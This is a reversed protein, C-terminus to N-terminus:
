VAYQEADANKFALGLGPRSLDPKINGDRPVPAGEFLMHEIRVHDHFWELNRFRPIACAAAVHLSPACHGSLDTHHAECLTGIALFGTIGGCRTADAQQVDVAGRGLMNRADDQTYVYEGAAIDVSYPANDRVFRLGPLDDSSVPEEFWRIDASGAFITAFHLAQRASLAGNADVFLAAAGIAKKAVAVRHPDQEPHTGIKMKVAGCGDREVWSSLQARLQEDSYTTFGGSGYIPVSDRVSGLLRALPLDLLKAKLDWLAIDVASIGCSALGSRGLNRVARQMGTWAASVNMADRGLTAPALVSEILEAVSADAYTYGMGTKGGAQVEVFVLTTKTWTFTGDAEPADTPITYARASVAQVPLGDLM